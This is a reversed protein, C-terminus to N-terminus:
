NNIFDCLGPIKFIFALGYQSVSSVGSFSIWDINIKNLNANNLLEDKIAIVKDICEKVIIQFQSEENRGFLLCIKNVIENALNIPDYELKFETKCFSMIIGNLFENIKLNSELIENGLKFRKICELIFLIIYNLYMGKVKFKCIASLANILNQYRDPNESFIEKLNIGTKIGINLYNNFSCNNNEDIKINDTNVIIDFSIKKGRKRFLTKHHFFENPYNNVSTKFEDYILKITQYDEEEKLELNLSLVVFAEKIYEADLDYFENNKTKDFSICEFSLGTPETKSGTIEIDVEKQDNLGLEIIKERINSFISFGTEYGSNYANSINNATQDMM